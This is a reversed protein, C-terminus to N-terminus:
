EPINILKKLIYDEQILETFQLGRCCLEYKIMRQFLLSSSNLNILINLILFKWLSPAQSLLNVISHITRKSLLLQEVSITERKSRTLVPANWLSLLLNKTKWVLFSLLLTNEETKLTSVLFRIGYVDKRM